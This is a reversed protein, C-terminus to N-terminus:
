PRIKGDARWLYIVRDDGQSDKFRDTKEPAWDGMAFAHSVIRTGPALQRTLIPRLKLNASSVLYLTVV